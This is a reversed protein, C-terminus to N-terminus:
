IYGKIDYVVYGVIEKILDTWGTFTEGSPILYEDWYLYLDNGTYQDTPYVDVAIDLKDFIARARRMHRASTVLLLKDWGMSDILHKSYLANEYTNRSQTEIYIDEAPFDFEILENKLRQAENLDRGFVYGSDGSLLIKDVKGVKYLRMTQWIRDVGRRCSIRGADSDWEVMGGLVIAADYHELRKDNVAHVEWAYLSLKLLAPNSFIILIIVCAVRLKKKWTIPKVWFSILVLMLIWVLPQLFFYVIKSLIFFM